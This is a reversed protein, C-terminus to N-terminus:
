PQAEYQDDGPPQEHPPQDYPPQENRGRGPESEEPAAGPKEGGPSSRKGASEPSSEKHPTGGGSGNAEPKVQKEAPAPDEPLKAFFVLKGGPTRVELRDADERLLAANFTCRLPKDGIGIFTGSNVRKGDESVLTVRYTQGDRL